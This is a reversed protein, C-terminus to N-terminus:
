CKFRSVPQAETLPRSCPASFIDKCLSSATPPFAPLLESHAVTAVLPPTPILEGHGVDDSPPLAPLFEFGSAAPVARPSSDGPFASRGSDPEAGIAEGGVGDDVM